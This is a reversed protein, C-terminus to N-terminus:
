PKPAATTRILSVGPFAVLATLSVMFQLAAIVGPHVAALLPPTRDISAILLAPQPFFSSDVSPRTASSQTPSQASLIGFQLTVFLFLIAWLQRRTTQRKTM